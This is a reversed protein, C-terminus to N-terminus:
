KESKQLCSELSLELLQCRPVLKQNPNPAIRAYVQTKRLIIKLHLIWSISSLSQRTTVPNRQFRFCILSLNIQHSVKENNVIVVKFIWQAIKKMMLNRNKNVLNIHTSKAIVDTQAIHQCNYKIPINWALYFTCWTQITLFNMAPVPYLYCSIKAFIKSFTYLSM